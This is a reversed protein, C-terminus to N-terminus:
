RSAWSWWCRSRAARSALIILAPSAVALSAIKSRSKWATMCQPWSGTSSLLVVDGLPRLPGARHQGEEGLVGAGVVQDVGVGVDGLGGLVPSAMANKRWWQFATEPESGFISIMSWFTVVWAMRPSSSARPTLNAVKRM